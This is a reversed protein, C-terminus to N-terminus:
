ASVQVPEVLPKTTSRTLVELMACPPQPMASAPLVGGRDDFIMDAYADLVNISTEADTGCFIRIQDPGARFRALCGQECHSLESSGEIEFENTTIRDAQTMAEAMARAMRAMAPCTGGTRQCLTAMYEHSKTKWIM